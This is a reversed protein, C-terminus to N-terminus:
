VAPDVMKDRSRAMVEARTNTVQDFLRRTHRKRVQIMKLLLLASSESRIPEPYKVTRATRLDTRVTRNMVLSGHFSTSASSLM